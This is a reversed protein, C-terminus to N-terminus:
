GFRVRDGFREALVLRVSEANCVRSGVRLTELRNPDLAQVLRLMAPVAEQNPPLIGGLWLHRLRRVFSQNALAIIWAPPWGEIFFTLDHLRTFVDERPLPFLPGLSALHTVALRRVRALLQRNTALLAPVTAPVFTLDEVSELPSSSLFEATSQQVRTDGGGDAINPSSQVTLSTVNQLSARALAQAEAPAAVAVTLRRLREPLPSRAFARYQDEAWQVNSRDPNLHLEELQGLYTSAAVAELGGRAGNNLSLTRLGRLHPGDIAQWDRSVIGHLDLMTLPSADRWRRLIDGSHSLQGQFQLSNPFGGAFTIRTLAGFSTTDRSSIQIAFQDQTLITYPLGTKIEAGRVRRTLWGRVGRLPRYPMPLGTTACFPEWWDLWHAAFLDRTRLLLEEARRSNPHVTEAEVQARIFEARTADVANGTEELFDAFVLRATRDAPQEAITQLFAARDDM